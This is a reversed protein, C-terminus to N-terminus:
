GYPVERVTPKDWTAGIEWILTDVIHPEIDGGCKPYNFMPGVKVLNWLQYQIENGEMSFVTRIGRRGHSKPM